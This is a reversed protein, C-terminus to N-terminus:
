IRIKFGKDHIKSNESCIIYPAQGTLVMREFHDVKKRSCIGFNTSPRYTSDASAVYAIIHTEVTITAIVVNNLSYARVKMTFASPKSSKSM